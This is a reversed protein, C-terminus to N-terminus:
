QLLQYTDNAVIRLLIYRITCANSPFADKLGVHLHHAASPYQQVSDCRKVKKDKIAQLVVYHTNNNHYVGLFSLM